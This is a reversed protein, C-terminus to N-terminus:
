IYNYYNLIKKLDKILDESLTELYKEVCELMRKGEENINKYSSPLYNFVDVCVGTQAEVIYENMILGEQMLKVIREDACPTQTSKFFDALNVYGKYKVVEKDLDIDVGTNIYVGINQLHKEFEEIRKYGNTHTKNNM